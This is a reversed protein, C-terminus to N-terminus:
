VLLVHIAHIHLYLGVNTAFHSCVKEAMDSRCDGDKSVLPVERLTNLKGANNGFLTSRRHIHHLVEFSLGTRLFDDTCQASLLDRWAYQITNFICLFDM